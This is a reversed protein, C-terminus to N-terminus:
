VRWKLTDNKIRTRTELLVKRIYSHQCEFKDALSKITCSCKNEYYWAHLIDRKKGPKTTNIINELSRTVAACYHKQLVENEVDISSVYLNGNTEEISIGDITPESILVTAKAKATNLSRGYSGVRNFILVSAYTSLKTEKHADYTQIADYLAQIGRSLAEDDKALNLKHLVMYVLGMNNAIMDNLERTNGEYM